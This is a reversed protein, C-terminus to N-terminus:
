KRPTFIKQLILEHASRHEWLKIMRSVLEARPGGRDYAYKRSFLGGSRSVMDLEDFRDLVRQIVSKSDGTVKAIQGVSCGERAERVMYMLVTMHTFDLLAIRIFEELQKDLVLGEEGTRAHEALNRGPSTM